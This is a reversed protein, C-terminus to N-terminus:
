GAQKVMLLLPERELRWQKQFSLAMTLPLSRRWPEAASGKSTPVQLVFREVAQAAPLPFATV